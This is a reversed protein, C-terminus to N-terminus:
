ADGSVEAKDVDQLFNLQQQGPHHYVESRKGFRYRKLDNIMQNIQDIHNKYYHNSEVLM